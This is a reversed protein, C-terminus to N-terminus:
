FPYDDLILWFIRYIRHFPSSDPTFECWIPEETVICPVGDRWVARCILREKCPRVQGLCDELMVDVAELELICIDAGRGVGLTGIKEPWGQGIMEACRSTSCRIVEFLPMGLM